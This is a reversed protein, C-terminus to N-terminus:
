SESADSQTGARTSFARGAIHATLTCMLATLLALILRAAPISEGFSSYILGLILPFFPPQWFAGPYLSGGRAFRVAAEHYEAADVIPLFFVPNALTDKLYFAQVALALVFVFVLGYPDSTEPAVPKETGPMAPNSPVPANPTPQDTM